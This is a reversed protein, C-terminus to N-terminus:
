ACFQIHLKAGWGNPTFDVTRIALDRASDETHQEFIMVIADGSAWGADDVIEQVISSLDAGNGQGSSSAGWEWEETAAAGLNASDWNVSASTRSRADISNGTTTFVGTDVAEGRIQHQPEDASTGTMFVGVAADEITAGAPVTVSRWRLGVHETARDSLVTSDTLFVNNNTAQFADDASNAVQGDFTQGCVEAAAGSVRRRVPRPFGM